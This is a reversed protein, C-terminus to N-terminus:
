WVDDCKECLSLLYMYKGAFPLTTRPAALPAPLSLMQVSPPPLVAEEMPTRSAASTASPPAPPSGMMASYHNGNPDLQRRYYKKATAPSHGQIM